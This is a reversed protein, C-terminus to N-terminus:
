DRLHRFAEELIAAAALADQQQAARRKQADPLSDILDDAAFSSLREDVFAVLPDFGLPLSMTNTLNFAFHRVSQARRGESDDMNLPLGLILASVGYETCLAKLANCNETFNKGELVRLPTALRWDPDSIALGIRKPAHDLAILRRKGAPLAALRTSLEKIGIVPM